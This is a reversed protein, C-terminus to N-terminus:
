LYYRITVNVSFRDRKLGPQYEEFEYGFSGRFLFDKMFVKSLMISAKKSGLKVNDAPDSYLEDPSTGTGVTIGVFDDALRFYRRATLFYSQSITNDKPVIFPRFSFWYNRYYKGVSGTYFFFNDDWYLYRIGLSAEFKLPLKQFLELGGRHTPFSKGFAYAYNVFLYNAETLKPYSELEFQFSPKDEIPSDNIYTQALNVRGILPGFGMRKGFGIGASHYRRKFPTRHFDGAYDALFYDRENLPLFSIIQLSKLIKEAEENEPDLLLIQNLTIKAADTDGLRAQIRAKKLLLGKDNENFSLGINCLKIAEALNGTWIEVDALADIADRYGYRQQLVHNLVVRASDYNKDWALTRGILVSADYYNPKKQLIDLCIQRAKEREGAFAASRAVQFLDDTTPTGSLEQTIGAISTLAYSIVITFLKINRLFRM